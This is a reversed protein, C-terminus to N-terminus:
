EEDKIKQNILQDALSIETALIRKARQLLIKLEEVDENNLSRDYLHHMGEADLFMRVEKIWYKKM